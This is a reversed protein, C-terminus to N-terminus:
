FYIDENVEAHNESLFDKIFSAVQPDGLPVDQLICRLERTDLVFSKDDVKYTYLFDIDPNFAVLSYITSTMDGLPMRDIHSLRFVAEIKTGAGLASDLHFEGECSLSAQKFFPIGLGVKRTTRTTYFPDQANAAQEKTMGCGNDNISIKLYDTAQNIEVYIEILSAHANISNQVIDLINLSIETMM